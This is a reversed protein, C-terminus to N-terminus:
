RMTNSIVIFPPPPKQYEIALRPSEGSHLLSTNLYIMAKSCRTITQANRCGLSVGHCNRLESFAVRPNEQHNTPDVVFDAEGLSTSPRM